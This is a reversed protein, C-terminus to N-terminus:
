GRPLLEAPTTEHVRGRRTSLTVTDGPRYSGLVRILENMDRTPRGDIATIVSGLRLGTRERAGPPLKAVRPGDGTGEEIEIGLTAALDSGTEPVAPLRAIWARFDAELADQDDFGAAARLAALGTPDADYTATYARYFETLRDRDQLYLFVARAHAYKALPKAANFRDLETAALDELTPLARADLLRKLMNTRWSPVFLPQGADDLDYDEALSALGEQIWLAHRQGLRMMDRWELVHVLEHRLTAGLDRSVLRKRDHDYAGGIASFGRNADPGFSLVQWDRFADPDPIVVDVWPHHSQWPDTDLADFVHALYWNGLLTIEATAADTGEPDHASVIELRLHDLTRREANRGALREDRTLIARRRAELIAPWHDLLDRYLDRARLPELYDDRQLQYVDDFGKEIAKSLSEEAAPLDGLAADACALNYWAVFGDPDIRTQELLADRAAPYDQDAFAQLATAACESARRRQDAIQEARDRATPAPRPRPDAHAAAAALLLVILPLRRTM